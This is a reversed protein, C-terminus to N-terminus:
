IAQRPMYFTVHGGLAPYAALGASTFHTMGGVVVCTDCELIGPVHAATLKHVYVFAREAAPKVNSM